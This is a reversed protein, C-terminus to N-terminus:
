WCDSLRDLVVLNWNLVVLAGSMWMVSACSTCDELLGTVLASAGSSM